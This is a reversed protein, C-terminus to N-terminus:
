VVDVLFEQVVQDKGDSITVKIDKKGRSTFTRKHFPTANHKDFLGFDWFYTLTDEDPDEATVFLTLPENIKISLDKSFDLIKPPQNKDIVTITASQEAASQGDSARFQIEIQKKAQGKVFDFSPTFTFINGDIKANPLNDSSFTLADNDPDSAELEITATEMEKLKLDKIKKFIPDRNSKEVNITVFQSVRYFGDTGTVKVIYTGADGFDTKKTDKIMWRSYRFTVKDNDPDLYTPEIKVTEGEKVTIPAIPNLTFPRNVDRVTIKIEKEAKKENSEAIFKVKVSDSLIRFKELVKDVYNEKKIFDFSPKWTFIDADLFSGEPNGEMSYSIKDNDPDETNLRITMEENENITISKLGVFSPARDKNLVTIQAEKRGSFGKGEAKITVKQTGADDFTTKWKNDQGLPDSITYSM